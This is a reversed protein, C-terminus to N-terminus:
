MAAKFPNS